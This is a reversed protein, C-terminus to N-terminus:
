GRTKVMAPRIVHGKWGYGVRLVEVVAPGGDEEGDEHLVAEHEEPNFPAGVPDLLELGQRTLAEVLSTHVLAVDESGNAIAMDCADLVPLLESVLSDNARARNDAERKAVAKKYNEFEAQLRRLGDLYEDREQSVRELDFVLDEVSAPDDEGQRSSARALLEDEDLADVLEGELVDMEANDEPVSGPTTSEAPEVVPESSPSRDSDGSPVDSM